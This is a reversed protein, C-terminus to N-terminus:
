AGLKDIKQGAESEFVFASIGSKAVLNVFDQAEDRTKFPGTLVRNTARLPTTWGTRGKFAAPAKAKAAAWAKQLDRENAGGAVQVWIRAPDTKAPDPKGKKAGRATTASTDALVPCADKAAAGKAGSKSGRAAAPAPKTTKGKATSKAAPPCNTATLTLKPKDTAGTEGKDGRTERASTRGAAPSGLDAVINAILADDSRVPKPAAVVPKTPVATKEVIREPTPAPKPVEPVAQAIPPSAPPTAAVPTVTAEPPTEHATEERAINSPGPQTAAPAVTKPPQSIPSPRPPPPPAVPESVDDSDGGSSGQEADPNRPIRTSREPPIIVQNAMAVQVPPSAPPEAEMERPPPPLAPAPPTVQAVVAPPVSAAGRRRRKDRSTAAKTLVPVPKAVEVPEPPLAALQPALRADALRQPSSRLDGFHVAFARDAPGLTPLVEFFHQLGLAMTPPLMSTAISQAGTIDGTMALVFSRVRWAGRDSRRIMPDLLALAPDRQGSIALSLALRRTTEDTADRKLAQRYDRQARRQDGTLDYALGRDALQGDISVGGREAMAFLRLAEGPREQRVMLSAKGAFLRPDQPAIREARSFLIDAASLDDLRTALVGADILANLDTPNEALIRMDAALADADPSPAAVVEGTQAAPAPAGGAAAAAAALTIAIVRSVPTSKM